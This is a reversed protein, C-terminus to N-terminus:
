MFIFVDLEHDNLVFGNSCGRLCLEKIFKSVIVDIINCNNNM